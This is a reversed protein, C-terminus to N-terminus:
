FPTGNLGEEVARLVEEREAGVQALAIRFYRRGYSASFEGGGHLKRLYDDPNRLRVELYWVPRRGRGGRSEDIEILECDAVDAWRVRGVRWDRYFIGSRDLVLLPRNDTARRGQIVVLAVLAPLSLLAFPLAVVLRQRWSKEVLDEVGTPDLLSWGVFWAAAVLLAALVVLDVVSRARNRFFLQGAVSGGGATTM